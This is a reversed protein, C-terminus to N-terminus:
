KDEEIRPFLNNATSIKTNSNLSGFSLDNKIDANISKLLKQTKNPM